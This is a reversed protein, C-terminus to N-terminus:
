SCKTDLWQYSVISSNLFKLLYIPLPLYVRIGQNPISSPLGLMYVFYFYTEIEADNPQFQSGVPIQSQQLRM